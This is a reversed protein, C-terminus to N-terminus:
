YIKKICNKGLGMSCVVQQNAFLPAIRNDSCKNEVLVQTLHRKQQPVGFASEFFEGDAIIKQFCCFYCRRLYAAVGATSAFAVTM